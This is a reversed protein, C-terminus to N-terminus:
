KNRQQDKLRLLRQERDYVTEGGPIRIDRVGDSMARTPPPGFVTVAIIVACAPVLGLAGAIAAPFPILSSDGNVIAIFAVFFGTLIGALAATPSMRKWWISIAIVPFATAASLSVAWLLLQLPDTRVLTTFGVGLLVILVMHIRASILRMRPAVPNRDLGLLIDESLTTALVYLTTAAAILAASVAGALVLYFMIPPLNAAIPVAFLVSDRDFTVDSLALSPKSAAVTSKGMAVITQYWGPLDGSPQGVLDLMVYNRLFVTVASLTLVVVGLFFISWSLTKRAEYVGVTTGCRPLLWPAAAIGFMMTLTALAFSLPSLSAYPTALATTLTAHGQPALNFAFATQAPSIIQQAVELRGVARLVPGYSLQAVPLNTELVGVIAATAVIALIAAIAQATGVWGLARMGGAALTLLLTAALILSVRGESIGTLMSAAYSAMNLEAAFLLLAPVSFVAASAVRMARSEFRRGLFSPATYGGYKRLYPAIMTGMVVFGATMGIFLCWADFGNIFLLGSFVILGTGGTSAVAMVLGNYVAPVRRGAAFFESPSRSYSATGIAVFMALPVFLVSLRVIVDSTGLQQLILLVLFLAAFCSAFISFYTGLRPNILRSRQTTTM